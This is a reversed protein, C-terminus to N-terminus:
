PAEMALGTEGLEAELAIRLKKRADHMMKYLAGRSKGERRAIEMLTMGGLEALLVDRQAPSLHTDIARRLAKKRAVRNLAEPAAHEVRLAAEGGSIADDIDAHARRRRLRQLAERVAISTAWTTFRSRGEFRELHEMVKVVADQALDDLDADSLQRGFAKALAARLRRQLESAAADREAGGSGDRLTEVWREDEPAM